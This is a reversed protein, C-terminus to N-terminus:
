PAAMLLDERRHACGFSREVFQRAIDPDLAEHCREGPSHPETLGLPGSLVSM